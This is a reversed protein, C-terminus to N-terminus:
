IRMWMIDDIEKKDIKLREDEGIGRAVFFYSSGGHTEFEIKIRTDIKNHIYVGTEEQV